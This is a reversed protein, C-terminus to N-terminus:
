PRLEQICSFKCTSARCQLHPPGHKGSHNGLKIWHMCELILVTNAAPNMSSSPALPIETSIQHFVETRGWPFPSNSGSCWAQVSTPSVVTLTVRTNDSKWRMAEAQELSRPYSKTMRNRCSVSAWLRSADPPSHWCEAGLEPVWFGSNLLFCDSCLVGLAAKQVVDEGIRASNKQLVQTPVEQTNSLAWCTNCSKIRPSTETLLQQKRDLIIQRTASLSGSKCNESCVTMASTLKIKKAATPETKMEHSLDM